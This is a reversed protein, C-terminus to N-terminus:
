AGPGRKRRKAVPRDSGAPATGATYQGALSVPNYFRFEEVCNPNLLVQRAYHDVMEASKWRGVAQVVSQSLGSKLLTCTGGIRCSHTGYTKEGQSCLGAQVFLATYGESGNLVHYLRSYKRELTVHVDVKRLVEFIRVPCLPLRKPISLPSWGARLLPADPVEELTVTDRSIRGKGKLVTITITVQRLHSERARGLVIEERKLALMSSVRSLTLFAGCMSLAAAFEVDSSVAQFLSQLRSVSLPRKQDPESLGRAMGTLCKAVTKLPDDLVHGLARNQELAATLLAGPSAYAQQADTEQALKLTGAFELIRSVTM